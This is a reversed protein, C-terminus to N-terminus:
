RLTSASRDGSPLSLPISGQYVNSDMLECERLSHAFIRSGSACHDCHHHGCECVTCHTICTSSRFYAVTRAKTPCRHVRPRVETPFICSETHINKEDTHSGKAPPCTQLVRHSYNTWSSLQSGKLPDIQSPTRVLTQSSVLNSINTSVGSSAESSEDSSINQLFYFIEDAPVMYPFCNQEVSIHDSLTSSTQDAWQVDTAFSDPEDDEEIRSLTRTM